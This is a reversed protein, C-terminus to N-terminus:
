LLSFIHLIFPYQVYYLIKINPNQKFICYIGRQGHKKFNKRM